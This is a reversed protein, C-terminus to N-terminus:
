SKIPKQIHLNFSERLQIFYLSQKQIMIKNLIVLKPHPIGISDVFLLAVIFELSGSSSLFKYSLVLLLDKYRWDTAKINSCLYSVSIEPGDEWTLSSSSCEHFKYYLYTLMFLFPVKKISFQFLIRIYM